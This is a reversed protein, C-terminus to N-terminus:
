SCRDMLSTLRTHLSYTQEVKRRDLWSPWRFNRQHRPCRCLSPVRQPRTTPLMPAQQMPFDVPLTRLHGAKPRPFGSTPLCSSSSSSSSSYSLCMRAVCNRSLFCPWFFTHLEQLVPISSFETVLNEGITTPFVTRRHFQRDLQLMGGCRHRGSTSGSRIVRGSHVMPNPRTGDWFQGCVRVSGSHGSHQNSFNGALRFDFWKCLSCFLLSNIRFYIYTPM